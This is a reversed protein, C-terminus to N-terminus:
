IMDCLWQYESICLLSDHNLLVLPSMVEAPFVFVIDPLLKYCVYGCKECIRELYQYKIYSTGKPVIHNYKDFLGDLAVGFYLVKCSYFLERSM